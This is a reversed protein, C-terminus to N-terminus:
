KLILKTTPIKQIYREALRKFGQMGGYAGAIEKRWEDSNIGTGKLIELFTEMSYSGQRLCHDFVYPFVLHMTYAGVTKQVLYRDPSAFAEPILDRIANWYNSLVREADKAESRRIMPVRMAPLLSRYFSRETITHTRLKQENTLQIRRHWCSDSDQAMLDTVKIAMVADERGLLEAGDARAVLFRLVLDVPVGKQRDNIVYFHEMEAKRDQGNLIVVPLTYEEYSPDAGAAMELGGMRHQGDVLWLKSKITLKGFGDEGQDFSLGQPERCNFVVATPLTGPREEQVYRKVQRARSEDLTRQYGQPNQNIEFRDVEYVKALDSVSLRTLYLDVGRQTIRFAPVEIDGKPM